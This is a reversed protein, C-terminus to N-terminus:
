GTLVEYHSGSAADKHVEIRTPFANKIEDLHTVVLVKSFDDSIAQICEIMQSLGEKDQTGFGEDIILTRLQTGARRALLKSLAIRLAFDARFAEGGSFLLYERTGKDDSIKIDLTERTGGSQKERQSELSIQMTNRTLRRLIQNADDQIEPIANEIILAQIGDKGFARATEKLVFAERAKTKREEALEGRESERRTLEALAQQQKGLETRAARDDERLQNLHTQAEQLARECAALQLAVDGTSAAEKELRAHTQEADQLAATTEAIQKAVREAQNLENQLRDWRLPANQLSEWLARAAEHAARAEENYGLAKAERRVRAIEAHAEGAYNGAELEQLLRAREPQLEALASESQAKLTRAHDLAAAEREVPALESVRESTAQHAAGDYGIAGLVSQAEQEARVLEPAFAGSQLATQAAQVQEGLVTSNAAAARAEELAHSLRAAEANLRPADRLTEQAERMPEELAAKQKQLARGERTCEEIHARSAEIVEAISSEIHDRGHEGLENRCLPCEADPNEHLVRLKDESAAIIAKEAECSQKLHSLQTEIRLRENQLRELEASAAGLTQLAAEANAVQPELTQARTAAARSEQWERQLTALANEHEMRAARLADDAARWNEQARDHAARRTAFSSEAERAAQLEAVRRAIAAGERLTTESGQLVSEEHAIRAQWESLARQLGAAAIDIIEKWRAHEDRLAFHRAADADWRALAAKAKGHEEMDRAIEDSQARLAEIEEQRRLLEGRQNQLTAQRARVENLEGELQAARKRREDLRIRLATKETVTEQLAEIEPAFTRVADEYLALQAQVEGRTALRKEIEDIQADLAAVRAELTRMEERARDAIEQYRALGLIEALVKKRDGPPQQSFRDAQGQKLYASSLFTEYNMHLLGELLGQSESVSPRTIPRFLGSAADLVNVELSSSQRKNKLYARTVRYREGDLDFVFEVRMESQGLRLLSPTANRAKGWLAWTLGDLLASKGNGNNGSLCATHFTSFDLPPLDTGYSLFNSLHLSIPIV